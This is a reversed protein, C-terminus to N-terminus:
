AAENLHQPALPLSVSFITGHNDSSYEIFGQHESVLRAVIALGLGTGNKKGSVFPTFLNERIEDPIGAGNDQVSIVLRRPSYNNVSDKDGRRLGVQYSTSITIIGNEPNCAEVANKIINLFIQILGDRNGFVPPLSPDYQERFRVHRGFGTVALQRVYELIEHVNIPAMKDEQEGSFVGMRDILAAIRDVEECILGALPRTQADVRQELLQAAGRIGSLPNKIEHALMASMADMSKAVYHGAAQRELKQEIRRDTLTIVVYGPMSPISSLEAWVKIKSLRPGSLILEHMMIAAQEERVKDIVSFLRSESYFTDALPNKAALARSTSLFSEAAGNLMVILNKEDIVVIPLPVNEFILAKLDNDEKPESRKARGRDTAGQGQM